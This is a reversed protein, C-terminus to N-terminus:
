QALIWQVLNKVQEPDKPPSTKVIKHEEEHGDPFKAKEGSTIHNILKAEAGPKGKYKEAVSHYSPGDKDGALHKESQGHCSTCQPTRADGKVGHKTQYISLVPANESEDHCKTCKADEKFAAKAINAKSQGLDPLNNQAFALPAMGIAGMVASIVLLKKFIKM